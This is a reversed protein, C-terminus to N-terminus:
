RALVLEVVQQQPTLIRAPIQCLFHSIEVWTQQWAGNNEVAMVREEGFYNSLNAPEGSPSGYYGLMIEPAVYQDDDPYEQRAVRREIRPMCIDIDAELHLFFANSLMDGPFYQWVEQYSYNQRAFEVLILTREESLHRDIYASVRQLALSLVLPDRVGFGGFSTPYFRRDREAKRMDERFMQHLIDYDYAHLVSRSELYSLGPVRYEPKMAAGKIWRATRSKGSGPRGLLFIIEPMM